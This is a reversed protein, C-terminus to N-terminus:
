GFHEVAYSSDTVHVQTSLTFPQGDHQFEVEAYLAMHGDDPTAIQTSLVVSDPSVTFELPTPMWPSARFDRGPAYAVWCIASVPRTDPQITLSVGHADAAFHWELVPLPRDEAVANVFAIFTNFLRDPDELSHGVNPIDLLYKRGPLDDWYFNIADTAWYPDNAGNIILKPLTLRDRFTYPDVMRGLHMGTPTQMRQPLEHATYDSIQESYGEFVELQHPMQAPMNLNDYVMPVIAAVRPDVVATLWTTWGRKSAGSVLFRRASTANRGTLYAQLADMARVVSRTMPFLLPWTPDGTDLYNAFTQAILADEYLDDFLPQNPIDSLFACAAGTTQALLTGLDVQRAGPTDVYLVVLDPHRWNQPVFLQIQHTWPIGQWVQSILHLETITVEAQADTSVERWTYAPDHRQVYAFLENPEPNSM